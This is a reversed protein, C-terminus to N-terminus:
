KLKIRIAPNRTLWDTRSAGRRSPTEMRTTAAWSAIDGIDVSTLFFKINAVKRFKKQALEAVVQYVGQPAQNSLPPRNAPIGEIKRAYPVVSVFNYDEAVPIPEGPAVMDFGAFLVHSRRYLGPHGPRKDAEAGVPSHKILQDRIFDFVDQEVLDFEYEIKGRRKVTEEKAGKRGDVTTTSSPVRGLVAQNQAKAESFLQKAVKATEQRVIEETVGPGLEAMLNLPPIKHKIRAM